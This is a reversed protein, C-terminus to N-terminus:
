FNVLSGVEEKYLKWASAAVHVLDMDPKECRCLLNHVEKERQGETMWAIRCAAQFQNWTLNKM